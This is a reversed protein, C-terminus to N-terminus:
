KGKVKPVNIFDLANKLKSLEVFGSEKSIVAGDKLVLITPGTFILYEGRLKPNDEVQILYMNIDYDKLAEKTKELMGVCVSCGHTKFFYIKNLDNIEMGDKYEIINM